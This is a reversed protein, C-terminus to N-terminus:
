EYTVFNKLQYRIVLDEWDVCCLCAVLAITEYTVFVLRFDRRDAEKITTHVSTKYYRHCSGTHDVTHEKTSEESIYEGIRAM